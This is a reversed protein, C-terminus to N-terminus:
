ISLVSLSDNALTLYLFQFQEEAPSDTNLFASLLSGIYQTDRRFGAYNVTMPSFTALLAHKFKHLRELVFM